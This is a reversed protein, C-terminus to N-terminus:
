IVIVRATFRCRSPSFLGYLIHLYLLILLFIVASTNAANINNTTANGALACVVTSIRPVTDLFTVSPAFGNLTDSMVMDLQFAVFKAPNQYSRFFLLVESVKVISDIDPLVM